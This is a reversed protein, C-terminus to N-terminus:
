IGEQSFAACASRGATGRSMPASKPRRRTRAAFTKSPEPGRSFAGLHTEARCARAGAGRRANM